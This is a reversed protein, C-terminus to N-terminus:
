WVCEPCIGPPLRGGGTLYLISRNFVKKRIRGINALQKELADAVSKFDKSQWNLREMPYHEVELINGDVVILEDREIKKVGKFCTFCDYYARVSLWKYLNDVDLEAQTQQAIHYITPMALYQDNKAYYFFQYISENDVFIYTIDNIRMAVAYMGIAQDRLSLIGEKEVEMADHLFARLAKEGIEEKYILTGACAICNEGDQYYNENDINLKHFVAINNDDGSLRFGSDECEKVLNDKWQCNNTVIMRGM